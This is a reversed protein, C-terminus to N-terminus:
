VVESRQAPCLPLFASVQLGLALNGRVKRLFVIFINETLFLFSFDLFWSLLFFDCSGPFLPSMRSFDLFDWPCLSTLLTNSNCAQFVAMRQQLLSSPRLRSSRTKHVSGLLTPKLSLLTLYFPLPRLYFLTCMGLCSLLYVFGGCNDDKSVVSFSYTSHRVTRFLM